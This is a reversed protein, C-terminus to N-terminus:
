ATSQLLPYALAQNAYIILWASAFCLDPTAFFDRHCQLGVGVLKCKKGFVNRKANDIFVLGYEDYVFRGSKYNM